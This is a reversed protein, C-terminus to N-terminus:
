NKIRKEKLKDLKKIEDYILERSDGKKLGKLTLPGFRVRILRSVLHGSAECIKRIERNVGETLVISIWSSNKNKQLVRVSVPKVNRRDIRRKKSLERISDEDVLGRVKVKYEREIGNEPLSLFKKMEGDNTLIVLGESNFDLRGVYSLYVRSKFLDFITPRGEPDAHTCIYGPPKNLIMFKRKVNFNIKKGNVKLSDVAPDIKDGLSAKMGNILVKGDQIIKEAQRRSMVGANSLLKQIREKM